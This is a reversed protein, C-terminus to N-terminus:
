RTPGAAPTRSVIRRRACGAPARAPSAPGHAPRCPRDELAMEVHDALAVRVLASRDRWPGSRAPGRRRSASPPRCWARRRRRRRRDRRHHGGDLVRRDGVARELQEERRGLLDAEFAGLADVPASSVPRMRSLRSLSSSPVSVTPHAPLVSVNRRRSSGRSSQADPATATVTVALPPAPPWEPVSIAWPRALAILTRAAAQALCEVRHREPEDREVAALAAVRDRAVRTGRSSTGAACASAKM